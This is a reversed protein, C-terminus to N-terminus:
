KVFQNSRELDKYKESLISWNDPLLIVSKKEIINFLSTRILTELLTKDVTITNENLNNTLDDLLANLSESQKELESEYKNKFEKTVEVLKHLEKKTITVYKKVEKLEISQDQFKPFNTVNKTAEKIATKEDFLNEYIFRLAHITTTFDINEIKVKDKNIVACLMGYIQTEIPEILDKILFGKFRLENDIGVLHPPLFTIANARTRYNNSLYLDM